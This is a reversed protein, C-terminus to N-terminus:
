AIYPEISNEFSVYIFVHVYYTHIINKLMCSAVVRKLCDLQLDDSNLFLLQCWPWRASSLAQCASPVQSSHLCWNEQLSLDRCAAAEFSGAGHIAIYPIM